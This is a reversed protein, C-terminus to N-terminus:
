SEVRKHLCDVKTLPPLEKLVVREDGTVRMLTRGVLMVVPRGSARARWHAANLARVALEPIKEEEIRMEEETV